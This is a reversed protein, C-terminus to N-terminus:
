HDIKKFIKINYFEDKNYDGYYESNTYLDEIIDEVTHQPIYGLSTKAKEITVKYNRFDEFHKIEMKIKNNTLKEIEHKVMDGVQGVTYNDSAINYIGSIAYDAQIARLYASVADRIDLLPRWISANNVTIKKDTM